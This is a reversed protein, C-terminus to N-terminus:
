SFKAGWRSVLKPHPASFKEREAGSLFGTDAGAYTLTCVHEAYMYLVNISIDNCYKPSFDIILTMPNFPVKIITM